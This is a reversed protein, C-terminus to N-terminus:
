VRPADEKDKLYAILEPCDDAYDFGSEHALVSLAGDDDKALRFKGRGVAQSLAKEAAELDALLSLATTPDSAAILRANAEANDGFVGATDAMMGFSQDHDNSRVGITGRRPSYAWPGPTAAEALRRLSDRQERTM